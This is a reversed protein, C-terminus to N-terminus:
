PQSQPQQQPQQKPANGSSDAWLRCVAKPHIDGEVLICSDQSDDFYKCTKCSVNPNTARKYEAQEMSYRRYRDPLKKKDKGFVKKAASGLYNFVMDPDAVIVESILKLKM